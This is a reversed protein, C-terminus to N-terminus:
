AVEEALLLRGEFARKLISQRLRACRVITTDLSADTADLASVRRDVEEAIRAQEATPPLPVIYRGISAQNIKHIGATTRASNEIQKRLFTSMWAVSLYSSGVLEVSARLRIMTDPFAVPSEVDGAVAAVGVRHLSGNGRMIFFDGPSVLWPKADSFSWAGNKAERLDLRGGEMATLRLVPFGGVRSPVSRGNTLPEDSLQDVTAWAWGGPLAPLGKMDPAAPEKYKRKKGGLEWKAKREALIRELLVSAPEYERGEARAVEAETAVLRGEVAAKLVSARALKVNAKARTLSSVTADLRAFHSEITAVIRRQEEIPPTPVMLSKLGAFDVSAVTTGSKAHDRLVQRGSAKIFYALFDPFFASSPSLAKLDQNVTVPVTTVAVPLTHELIGSRVVVLVAGASLLKASSGEVAQQTIKDASASLRFVKMDKASVWPITGNTWFTANAKSPTGGGRWTGADGLATSGWLAFTM